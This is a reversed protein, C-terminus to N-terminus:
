QRGDIKREIASIRDSQSRVVQSIDRLAEVTQSALREYKGVLDVIVNHLQKRELKADDLETRYQLLMDKLLLVTDLQDKERQLQQQREQELRLRRREAWMPFLKSFGRELARTVKGINLLLLALLVLPWGYQNILAVVQGLPSDPQM